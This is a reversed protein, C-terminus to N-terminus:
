EKRHKIRYNKKCKFGKKLNSIRKSIKYLKGSEFSALAEALDDNRKKLENVENILKSKENLLEPLEKKIVKDKNVNQEELYM